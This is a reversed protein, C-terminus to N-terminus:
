VQAPANSGHCAGQHAWRDGEGQTLTPRKASQREEAGADSPQEHAQRPALSREGSRTVDGSGDYRIAWASKLRM